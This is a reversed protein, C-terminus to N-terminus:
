VGLALTWFGAGAKEPVATTSPVKSPVTECKRHGNAVGHERSNSPLFPGESNSASWLPCIQAKALVCRVVLPDDEAEHGHGPGEHARGLDDGEALAGSVELGAVGLDDESGGVRFVTRSFGPGFRTGPGQQSSKALADHLGLFDSVAPRCVRGASSSEIHIMSIAFGPRRAHVLAERRSPPRPLISM